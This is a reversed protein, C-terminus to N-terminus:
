KTLQLIKELRNKYDGKQSLEKFSVWGSGTSENKDHDVFHIDACVFLFSIDHHTHSPENKRLNEPIPHSDIDFISNSVPYLLSSPIRTEEKAERLAAAIISEDSVEIHGGPQLWRKLIRHNLLLLATRTANIIYASATLHGVFNRRDILQSGEFKKLFQIIPQTRTAEHPFLGQYEDILEFIDLKSEM